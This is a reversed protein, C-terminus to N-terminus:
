PARSDEGSGGQGLLASSPETVLAVQSSRRPQLRHKRLMAAAAQAADRKRKIMLRLNHAGWMLTVLLSVNPIHRYHYQGKTLGIVDPNKLSSFGREVNTRLAYKEEWEPTGWFPFQFISPIEEAKLTATQICCAEDDGHQGDCVPLGPDRRRMSVPVKPCGLANLAKRRLVPSSLRVQGPTPKGHAVLAYISREEIAKRYAQKKEVPAQLGPREILRLREPLTPLYVGSPLVLCGRWTPYPHIQPSKLDFVGMVNQKRLAAMWKSDQSFGRGGILETVPHGSAQLMEVLRVSLPVDYRNAGFLAHAYVYSANDTTGGIVDDGFGFYHQKRPESEAPKGKREQEGPADPDRDGVLKSRWRADGDAAFEGRKIRAQSIPRCDAEVETTDTTHPAGAPPAPATDRLLCISMAIQTDRDNDTGLLARGRAVRRAWARQAAALKKGQLGDLERSRHQRGLVTALADFVRYLQWESPPELDPGQSHGPGAPVGYLMQLQGQTARAMMKALHTITKPGFENGLCLGGLVLVRSPLLPAGREPRIAQDLDSLFAFTGAELLETVQYLLESDM